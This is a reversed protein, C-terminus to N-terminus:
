NHWFQCPQNPVPWTACPPPPPCTQCYVTLGFPMNYHRDFVGKMPELVTQAGSTVLAPPLCGTAQRCGGEFIQGDIVGHYNVDAPIVLRDVTTGVRWTQQDVRYAAVFDTCEHAVNTEGMWLFQGASAGYHVIVARAEGVQLNILSKIAVWAGFVSVGSPGSPSTVFTQPDCPTTVFASAPYVFTLSRRNRGTPLAFLFQSANGGVQLEGAIPLSTDSRIGDGGLNDYTAIASPNSPPKAKAAMRQGGAFMVIGCLVLATTLHCTTKPNM